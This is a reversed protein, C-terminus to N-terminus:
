QRVAEDIIMQNFHEWEEIFRLKLQGVEHIRSDYVRKQLKGLDPLGHASTLVTPQGSLQLSSTQHKV